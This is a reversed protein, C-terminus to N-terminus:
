DIEKIVIEEDRHVPETIGLIRLKDEPINKFTECYDCFNACLLNKFLENAVWKMALEPTRQNSELILKHINGISQCFQTEGIRVNGKPDVMPTCFKGRLEMNYLLEKFNWGYVRANYAMSIINSCSPYGNIDEKKMFNRARGLYKLNTLSGQWDSTVQIKPSLKAFLGDKDAKMIKEYNPYYEKHTSIQVGVINKNALCNKIIRTKHTDFIFSGNSELIIKTQNSYKALFITLRQLYWQLDEIETIEGGTIVLIKPRLEKILDLVEDFTEHTMTPCNPTANLMCHKCGEFCKRTLEILM